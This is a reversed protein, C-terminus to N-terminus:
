VREMTIARTPCSEAAEEIMEIEAESAEFTYETGKLRGTGDILEVHSESGIQFLKPEMGVCNAALICTSPEITVTIKPM